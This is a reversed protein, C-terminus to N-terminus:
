DEEDSIVTNLGKLEDVFERIKKATEPSLDQMTVPDGTQSTILSMVMERERAEKEIATAHKKFDSSAQGGVLSVAIGAILMLEYVSLGLFHGVVVACVGGVSYWFKLSKYFPKESSM